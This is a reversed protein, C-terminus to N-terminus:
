WLGERIHMIGQLIAEAFDRQQRLMELMPPMPPTSPEEKPAADALKKGYIASDILDVQNKIEGLITALNLITDKATERQEDCVAMCLDSM